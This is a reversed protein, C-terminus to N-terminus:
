SMLLFVTPRKQINPKIRQWEKITKTKIFESELTIDCAICLRTQPLCHKVIDNFMNDNRFPTEIFIQTQNQHRSNKEIERLKKGRQMQEKPLYGHFVFSQGSMGSAMLSLLISSPGVMPVVELDQQHAIKVIEAGPDAVGPCGAESIIGIDHGQKAPTLYQLYDEPKTHKNLPYLTSDDIPFTRDMARLYRRATKEKEVIFHRINQIREYHAGPLITSLDSEGLSTPILFVKGKKSM